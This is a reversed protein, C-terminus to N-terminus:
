KCGECTVELSDDVLQFIGEKIKDLKKDKGYKLEIGCRTKNGEDVAHVLSQALSFVKRKAM